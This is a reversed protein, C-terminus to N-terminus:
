PKPERSIEARGHIIGSVAALVGFAAAVIPYDLMLWAAVVSGMILIEILAKGVPDLPLPAKSSRFLWWVLAAFAPAGVIYAFAPWPFPWAMYGWFALSLLAFLQILFRLIDNVGLPTPPAPTATTDAGEGDTGSDGV